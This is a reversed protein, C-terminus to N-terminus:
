DGMYYLVIRKGEKTKHWRWGLSDKIKSIRSSLIEVERETQSIIIQDETVLEGIDIELKIALDIIEPLNKEEYLRQAEYFNKAPAKDKIKDPHLLKILKRHIIKLIELGRESIEISRAQTTKKSEKEIDKELLEEKRKVFELELEFEKDFEDLYEELNFHIEELEAKLFQYQLSTKKLKLNTKNTM